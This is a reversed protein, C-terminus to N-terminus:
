RSNTNIRSSIGNFRRRCADPCPPSRPAAGVLAGRSASANKTNQGPIFRQCCPTSFRAAVVSSHSCGSLPALFRFVLGFNGTEATTLVRLTARIAEAHHEGDFVKKSEFKPAFFHLPARLALQRQSLRAPEHHIHIHIHTHTYSTHIHTHVYTHAYTHPHIYAFAWPRFASDVRSWGIRSQEIIQEASRRWADPTTGKLDGSPTFFTHRDHGNCGQRGQRGGESVLQMNALYGRKTSLCSLRWCDGM